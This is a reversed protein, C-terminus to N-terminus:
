KKFSRYLIIGRVLNVAQAVSFLGTFLVGYRIDRIAFFCGLALVFGAELFTTVPMGLKKFLWRNLPNSEIAGYETIGKVTIIYDGVQIFLALAM